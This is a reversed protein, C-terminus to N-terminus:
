GKSREVYRIRLDALSATLFREEEDTLNGRTKEELMGLLDILQKAMALNPQVEQSIPDPLEGLGVMAQTSLSLVLTQFNMAPLHEHAQDDGPPAKAAEPEGNGGKDAEPAKKKADSMRDVVKGNESVTFRRRDKVSFGADKEKEDKSM